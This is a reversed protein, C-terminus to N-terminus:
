IPLAATPDGLIVTSQIDRAVLLRYLMQSHSPVRLFTEYDVYLGGLQGYVHSLALGVPMPQFLEDYLAVVLPDTTYQKTEPQELTWNFTPEVHGIFARLPDAAGLLAQPLPAVRAGCQAVGQLILDAPSGPELLGDFLTREDSGASCCAHAYWIAGGPRWDELLQAPRVAAFDNDVLLGLQSGMEEPNDIPGTLGHSTTVIFVPKRTALQDILLAGTAGQPLSGDVYSTGPGIESDGRLRQAVPMAIAQRMLATIDEPGHDAAWVLAANPDAGAGRWDTM